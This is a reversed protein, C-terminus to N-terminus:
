AIASRGVKPGQFPRDVHHRTFWAAALAQWKRIALADWNFDAGIRDRDALTELIADPGLSLTQLIIAATAEPDELPCFKAGAYSEFLSRTVDLDGLFVPTGSILAELIPLGFAEYDSLLFVGRSEAYAQRLESESVYGRLDCAPQLDLSIRGLAEGSGNGIVILKLNPHNSLLRPFIAQIRDFRKRPEALDGVFLFQPKRETPGPRFADIDVGNAVYRCNNRGHTQAQVIARESPSVCLVADARRAIRHHIDDAFTAVEPTMQATWTPQYHPTYALARNGLGRLVAANTASNAWCITEVLDWDDRGLLDPLDSSFTDLSRPSDLATGVHVPIEHDRGFSRVLELNRPDRDDIAIEFDIRESLRATLEFFARGMGSYMQNSTSLVALVRMRPGAPMPLLRGPWSPGPSPVAFAM